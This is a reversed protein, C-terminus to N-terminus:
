VLLCCLGTQRQKSEALSCPALHVVAHVKEAHANPLLIQSVRDEPKIGDDDNFAYHESFPVKDKVDCIIDDNKFM